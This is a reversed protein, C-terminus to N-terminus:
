FILFKAGYNGTYILTSQWIFIFILLSRMLAIKKHIREDWILKAQETLLHQIHGRYEDVTAM